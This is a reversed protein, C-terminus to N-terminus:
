QVEFVGLSVVPDAPTCERSNLAKDPLRIVGVKWTGRAALKPLAFRGGHM